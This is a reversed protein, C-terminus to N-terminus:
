PELVFCFSRQPTLYAALDLIHQFTTQKCQQLEESFPVLRHYNELDAIAAQLLDYGSYDMRYICHIREQKVALFQENAQHLSGLVYWLLDQVMARAAPPIEMHIRLTRCDQWFEYNADVIYIIGRKYRLEDALIKEILDCLLCVSYRTFHLPIVWEYTLKAQAGALASFESLHVITEQKRSPQPSFAPPINTRQGSKLTSFPTKRLLQFLTHRTLPGICILSINRPVYYTDYFTQMEQASSAMFEDLVGIAADFTQLRPHGEFLFPRGQLAWTRAYEHEYKRHYERVVVAKEEEIQRTIKGLLLMKGFLTLAEQIHSINAPFHFTYKTALYSTTGFSGWGGLEAFRNELQSFTFGEVNETVMHELLHALGERQPPDKRAGAHVIVGTYFWNVNPWEKSYVSLGNALTDQQFNAYLDHFMAQKAFTKSEAEKEELTPPLLDRRM